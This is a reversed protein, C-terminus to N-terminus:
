KPLVVTKTLNAGGASLRAIYIGSSRSTPNWTVTGQGYVEKSFLLKGSPAYLSIEGRQVGAAAYNITIESAFPGSRALTIGRGGFKSVLGEAKVQPEEMPLMWVGKATGAFLNTGGVAFSLVVTDTLGSNGNVWTAGNDKSRFVGKQTAAFLTDKYLALATVSASDPLGTNVPFWVRASDKARVVGGGGTGAFIFTDNAVFSFPIINERPDWLGNTVLFWTMGNNATRFASGGWTGIFVYNSSVGFSYISKFHLETGDDLKNVELWHGGTDSSRCVGGGNTGAFLFSDNQALAQINTSSMGTNIALWSKGSDGSRFMGSDQAGAFIYAGRIALARINRDTLGTNIALWSKGSDGSRSVGSDRTGAFLLTGNVALANVREGNLGNSHQWVATLGSSVPILLLCALFFSRRKKM